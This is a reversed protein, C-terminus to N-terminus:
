GNLVGEGTPSLQRRGKMPHGCDTCRYRQYTRVRTREVGKRVVNHSQCNTCIPLGETDDVFLGMNPHNSIWGRVTLYLEETITVDQKNYKIMEDWAKKEGKICRLWLSYEPNGKEELGLEGLVDGLRNSSFAFHKRITKILDIQAYPDPQEWGLKLFETNIRRIDFKSGNYHVVADCANLVDWINQMMDEFGDYYSSTAAVKKQGLWKYACCLITSEEVTNAKPINQQWRGWHFSLHPRTEIDLVLIKPSTM